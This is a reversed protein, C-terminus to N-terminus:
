HGCDQPIGGQLDMDAQYFHRRVRWGTLLGELVRREWWPGRHDYWRGKRALPLRM